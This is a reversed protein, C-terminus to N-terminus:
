GPRGHDRGGSRAPQDAGPDAAFGGTVLALWLAATALTLIASM